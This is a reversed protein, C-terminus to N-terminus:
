LPSPPPPSEDGDSDDALQAAIRSSAAFLTIGLVVLAAGIVYQWLSTESNKVRHRIFELSIQMGGFVVFGAAVLRIITRFARQM